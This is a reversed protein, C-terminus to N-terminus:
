LFFLFISDSRVKFLKCKYFFLINVGIGLYYWLIDVLYLVVLFFMWIVFGFVLFDVFIYFREELCYSVVWYEFM